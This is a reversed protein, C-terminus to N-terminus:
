KSSIKKQSTHVEWFGTDEFLSKCTLPSVAIIDEVPKKWNYGSTKCAKVINRLVLRRKRTCHSLNHITPSTFFFLYITVHMVNCAFDLSSVIHSRSKQIHQFNDLLNGSSHFHFRFELIVCVYPLTIPLFLEYFCYSFILLLHVTSSVAEILSCWEQKGSPSASFMSIIVWHLLPQLDKSTVRLHSSSPLTVATSFIMREYIM